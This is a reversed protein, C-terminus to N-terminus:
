NLQVQIPVSGGGGQAATPHVNNSRLAGGAWSPRRAALATSARTSMRRVGERMARLVTRVGVTSVIFTAISLMCAVATFAVDRRFAEESLTRAPTSHASPISAASQYDSLLKVMTVAVEGFHCVLTVLRSGLAIRRNKQTDDSNLKVHMGSLNKLMMVAPFVGTAVALRIITRCRDPTGYWTCQKRQVQTLMVRVLGWDTAVDMIVVGFITAILSLAFMGITIGATM